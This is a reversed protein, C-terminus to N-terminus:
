ILKTRLQSRLKRDKKLQVERKMAESKSFLEEQESLNSLSNESKYNEYARSFEISSIKQNGVKLVYTKGVYSGFGIFLFSIGLAASFIIVTLKKTKM